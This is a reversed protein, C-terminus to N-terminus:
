ITLLLSPGTKGRQLHRKCLETSSRCAPGSGPREVAAPWPAWRYHTEQYRTSSSSAARTCRPRHSHCHHHHTWQDTRSFRGGINETPGFVLMLNHWGHSAAEKGTPWDQSSRLASCCFWSYFSLPSSATISPLRYACHKLPRFWNGRSQKATSKMAHSLCRSWRACMNRSTSRHTMTATTERRIRGRTMPWPPQISNILAQTMSRRRRTM